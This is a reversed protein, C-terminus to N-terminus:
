GKPRTKAAGAKMSRQAKSVTSASKAAGAAKAVRGAPVVTTAVNEVTRGFETGRALTAAGVLVIGGGAVVLAIRRWTDPDTLWESFGKLAGAAATIGGAIDGLPGLLAQTPDLSGAFGAAGAVLDTPSTASADGGPKGGSARWADWGQRDYIRKAARFQARPDNRLETQTVGLWGFNTPCIQWLGVCGLENICDVRFSSEQSAKTVWQAGETGGPTGESRVLQLLDIASIKRTGTGARCAM